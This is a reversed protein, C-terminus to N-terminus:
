FISDLDFNITQCYQSFVYQENSPPSCSEGKERLTLSVNTEYGLYVSLFSIQCSWMLSAYFCRAPPKVLYLITNYCITERQRVFIYWITRKGEKALFYKCFLGFKGFYFSHIFNHPFMCSYHTHHLGFLSPEGYSWWSVLLYQLHKILTSAHTCM